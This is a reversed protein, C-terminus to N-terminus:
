PNARNLEPILYVFSFFPFSIFLFYIFSSSYFFVVVAVVNQFSSKSIKIKFFFLGAFCFEEDTM